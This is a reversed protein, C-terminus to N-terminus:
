LYCKFYVVGDVPLVNNKPVLLGVSFFIYVCLYLKINFFLVSAVVRCLLADM